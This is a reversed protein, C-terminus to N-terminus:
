IDFYIVKFFASTGVIYLKKMFETSLKPKCSRSESDRVRGDLLIDVIGFSIRIEFLVLDNDDLRTHRVEPSYSMNSM